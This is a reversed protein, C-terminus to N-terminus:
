TASRGTGLLVVQLDASTADASGSSDQRMMAVMHTFAVQQEQSNMTAGLHEFAAFAAVVEASGYLCIRCKADATRAGLEHGDSSHMQDPNAHESVCRLYDTYANTRADRRARLNDLHRTFAYQLLAGIVIGIFSFIATTM